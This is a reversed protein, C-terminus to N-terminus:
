EDEDDLDDGIWTDPVSLNPEIEWAHEFGKDELGYVSLLFGFCSDITLIVKDNIDTVIGYDMLTALNLGLRDREALPKLRPTKDVVRNMRSLISVKNAFTTERM